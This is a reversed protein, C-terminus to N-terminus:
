GQLREIAEEIQERIDPDIPYRQPVELGSRYVELADAPRDRAEYLRGLDRYAILLGPDLSVARELHDVALEWRAQKLLAGGYIIRGIFRVSSPLAAVEHHLRGRVLHGLPHDPDVRLLEGTLEWAEVALDARKRSGREGLALNGRAAAAWAYAEVDIPERALLERGHADALRLWRRREARTPGIIGMGLASRVARWRSNVDDPSRALHRDLLHYVEELQGLDTLLDASDAVSLRPRVTIVQPGSQAFIPDGALVLLGLACVVISRLCNLTRDTIM